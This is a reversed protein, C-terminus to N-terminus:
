DCFRTVVMTDGDTVSFNFTSYGETLGLEELFNEIQHLTRKLAAVLRKAGFPRTQSYPSGEALDDEELNTLFLAFICESDTTGRIKEFAEDTVHELFRRCISAFQDIRGVCVGVGFVMLHTVFLTRFASASSLPQLCAHIQNGPMVNGRGNRWQDFLTASVDDLQVEM